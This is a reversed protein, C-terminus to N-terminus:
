LAPWVKWNGQGDGVYRVVDGASQTTTGGGDITEAGLPIIDVGSATVSVIIEPCDDIATPLEIGDTVTSGSAHVYWMDRVPFSAADAIVPTWRRAAQRVGDGTEYWELGTSTVRMDLSQATATASSLIRGTTLELRTMRLEGVPGRLPITNPTAALVGAAASDVSLTVVDLGGVAEVSAAIGSGTKLLTPAVAGDTRRAFLREGAANVVYLLANLFPM